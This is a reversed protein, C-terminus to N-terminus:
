QARAPATGSGGAGGGPGGPEGAGSNFNNPSSGNGNIIGAVTFSGLAALKLPRSGAANLIVGSRINVTGFNFVAVGGQDVGSINVASTAGPGTIKMTSTNVTYTGAAPNFDAASATAPVALLSLCCLTLALRRM